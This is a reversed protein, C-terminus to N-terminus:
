RTQRAVNLLMGVAMMSVILSSGGSSVFPLPVGMVPWAGIAQGVNFFAQSLFWTTIGTALLMGFRDPARMAVRIGAVALAVFLAITLVAGIFGTEEAIVAFIFDTHAEPLFGWKARGQGLGTGTLSGNAAAAQAEITQYGVGQADKWPDLFASIRRFRWPFLLAFAGAGVAGAGIVGLVAPLPSGAVFLMAVMIFFIITTTGLNPQMMIMGAALGFTLLVPFLTLRLDNIWRARRSLLDAWFVILALKAFEAPQVSFQGVGLWRTAGNSAVGVHPVLVLFLMIYVALLAYGCRSQWRRYDRRMTLVMAVLGAVFWVFQRTFQYWPSGYDELSTVASASLVMALGVFNLVLVLSLITVFSRSRRGPPKAGRLRRGKPAPDDAFPESLDLVPGGVFNTVRGTRPAEAAGRGRRGATPKKSTPKKSTPKKPAAKSTATSTGGAKTRSASKAPAAKARRTTGAPTAGSAPRRASSSRQGARSPPRTPASM